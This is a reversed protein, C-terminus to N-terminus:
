AEEPEKEEIHGAPQPWQKEAMALDKVSTKKDCRACRRPNPALGEDMKDEGPRICALCTWRWTKAKGLGKHKARQRRGIEQSANPDSTEGATQRFGIAAALLDLKQEVRATMVKATFWDLPMNIGHSEECHPCTVQIPLNM